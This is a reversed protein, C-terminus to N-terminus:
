GQAQIMEIITNYQVLKINAYEGVFTRDINKCGLGAYEDALENGVDGAHGKVWKIMHRNSKDWATYLPILLDTNKIGAYDTLAHKHRFTNISNVVYKSDSHFRLAVDTDAYLLTGYLVGMIEGINNSATAPIHGYRVFKHKDLMSVFSWGAVCEPKGNGKSSGDTYVNIM